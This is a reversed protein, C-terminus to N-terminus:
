TGMYRKKNFFCEVSNYIDGKIEPISHKFNPLTMSSIGKPKYGKIGSENNSYQIQIWDYSDGYILDSTRSTNQDFVFHKRTKSINFINFSSKHKHFFEELESRADEFSSSSRKQIYCLKLVNKVRISDIAVRGNEYVKAHLLVDNLGIPDVSYCFALM